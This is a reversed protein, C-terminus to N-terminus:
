SSATGFFKVQVKKGKRYKQVIEPNAYNSCFTITEFIAGPNKENIKKVEDWVREPNSALKETIYGDKTEYRTHYAKHRKAAPVINKKLKQGTLINADRTKDKIVVACANGWKDQTNIWANEINKTIFKPRQKKTDVGYTNLWDRAKNYQNETMVGCDSFSVKEGITGTYGRSGHHERASNVLQRFLPEIDRKNYVNGTKRPIYGSEEFETAGM